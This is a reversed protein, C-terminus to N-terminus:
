SKTSTYSINNYYLIRPINKVLAQLDVIKDIFITLFTAGISLLFSILVLLLVNTTQTM